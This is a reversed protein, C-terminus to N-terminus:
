TDNYRWKMIVLSFNMSATLCSTAGLAFSDSLIAYLLWLLASALTLVLKGMSLDRVLKTTYTQWVQPLYGIISLVGAILGIVTIYTIKGM